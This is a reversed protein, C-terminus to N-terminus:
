ICNKFSLYSLDQTSPIRSARRHGKFGLGSYKEVNSKRLYFISTPPARSKPETGLNSSEKQGGSAKYREAFTSLSQTLKKVQSIFIVTTFTKITNTITITTTTTM